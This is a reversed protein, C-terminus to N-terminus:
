ILVGSLMYDIPLDSIISGSKISYDLNQLFNLIYLIQKSNYYPLYRKMNSQIFPSLGTTNLKNIKNACGYIYLNRFNNYLITLLGFDFDTKACDNIFKYIKDHQQTMIYESLVFTNDAVSSSFLNNSLMIEFNGDYDDSKISKCYCDLKNFESIFKTVNNNCLYFLKNRNDESLVQSDSFIEVININEPKISFIAPKFKKAFKTRLDLKDCIYVLANGNLFSGSLISDWYDENKILSDINKCVYCNKVNSKNLFSKATFLHQNDFPNNIYTIRNFSNSYKSEIINHALTIDNLVLIRFNDCCGKPKNIKSSSKAM